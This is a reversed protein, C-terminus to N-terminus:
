RCYSGSRYDAVDFHFHDHHHRDANPGLVTGFPGCASAHLRRMMRSNPGTWDDQVSLRTGDALIFASIDIANGKGHESLRAGPRSNRTRCAYHSAVRIAVLGGGKNGIEPVAREALWFNLRDAARKSLTAPTTLRIGAAETVRLANEVGCAGPGPVRGLKEAMLGVARDSAPDGGCAALALVLAAAIHLRM